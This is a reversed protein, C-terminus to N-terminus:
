RIRRASKLSFSLLFFDKLHTDSHYSLKSISNRCASKVCRLQVVSSSFLELSNMRIFFIRSHRKIPFHFKLFFEEAIKKECKKTNSSKRKAEKLFIIKRLLKEDKTIVNLTNISNEM